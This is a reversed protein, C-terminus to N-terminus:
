SYKLNILREELRKRDEGGKTGEEKTRQGSGGNQTRQRLIM